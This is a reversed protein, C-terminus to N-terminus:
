SRRDVVAAPSVKEGSALVGEMQRQEVAKRRLEVLEVLRPDNRWIAQYRPDARMEPTFEHAGFPMTEPIYLAGAAIAGELMEIARDTKGTFAFEIAMVWMLDGKGGLVRTRPLDIGGDMDRRAQAEIMAAFAGPEGKLAEIARRAWPDWREAAEPRREKWLTDNLYARLKELGEADGRMLHNLYMERLIVLNGPDQELADLYAANADAVRGACKLARPVSLTRWGFEPDLAVAMAAQDVAEVCRGVGSLFYSYSVRVDAQNPDLALSRELM